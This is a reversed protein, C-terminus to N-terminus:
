NRTTKRREKKQCIVIEKKSYTGDPMKRRESVTYSIPTVTEMMELIQLLSENVFTATYTLDRIEIDNLIIKVDFWRSLLEAVKDIKDDKFILKGEKWSVYKTLDEAQLSYQNTASNFVFHQGPAMDVAISQQSPVNKQIIVKGSELTTEFDTGDPYARVNFATGVAKVEMGNSEVIFPKAKNPAVEFYGEGLLRVSRTNGSFRSPYTMKSDHNLWVKTGDSLEFFTRSGSPSSIEIDQVTFHGVEFFRTYILLTIVPILLIVAVRSFLQIFSIKQAKLSHIKDNPLRESQNINIIHHIKDLRQISLDTDTDNTLDIKDWYDKFLNEESIKDPQEQMWGFVTDVESATCKNAIFKNLLKIDM